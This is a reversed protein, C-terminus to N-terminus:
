PRASHARPRAEVKAGARGAARGTRGAVRTACSDAGARLGRRREAGGDRRTSSRHVRAIYRLAHACGCVRERVSSNGVYIGRGEAGARWVESTARTSHQAARSERIEGRCSRCLYLYQAREDASSAREHVGLRAVCAGPGSGSCARGGSIVPAPPDVEAARHAEARRGVREEEEEVSARSRQSKAALAPAPAAAPARAGGGGRGQPGGRLSGPLPPPAKRANPLAPPGKMGPGMSPM